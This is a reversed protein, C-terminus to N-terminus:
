CKMSERYPRSVLWIVAMIQHLCHRTKKQSGLKLTMPMGLFVVCDSLIFICVFNAKRMCFFTVFDLWFPNSNVLVINQLLLSRLFIVLWGLSNRTELVKALIEEFTHKWGTVLRYIKSTKTGCFLWVWYPWSFCLTFKIHLLFRQHGNGTFDKFRRPM